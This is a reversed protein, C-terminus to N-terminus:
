RSKLEAVRKIADVFPTDQDRLEQSLEGFPRLSDHLGATGFKWASWADHVDEATTDRGKARLLVAYILFLMESDPPTIDSQVHDRILDADLAIYPRM